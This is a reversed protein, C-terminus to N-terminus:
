MHKLEEIAGQMASLDNLCRTIASWGAVGISRHSTSIVYLVSLLLRNIDVKIVFRQCICCKTLLALLCPCQERMSNFCLCISTLGEKFMGCQWRSTSCGCNLKTAVQKLVQTLLGALQSELNMSVKVQIAGFVSGDHYGWSSHLFFAYVYGLQFGYFFWFESQLFFSSISGQDM